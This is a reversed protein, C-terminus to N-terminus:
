ISSASTESSCAASPLRSSLLVNRRFTSLNRGFWVTDYRLLYDQEFNNNILHKKHNFQLKLRQVSTELPTAVETQLHNTAM